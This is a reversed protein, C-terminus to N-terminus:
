RTAKGGRLMRTLSVHLQSVVMREMSRAQSESLALKAMLAARTSTALRQEIQKLWRFVTAAHVRYLRGLADINLEDIYRQRLMNRERRSLSKFATTLAAKYEAACTRWIVELEPDGPAPLAALADESEPEVNSDVRKMDLAIRSAVVRVWRGLPGTGRYQTIAPPTEGDGVLLRDRVRQCVEDVFAASADIRGASQRVAPMLESEVIALAREDKGELACALYLDAAHIRRVAALEPPDDSALLAAGIRDLLVDRGVPKHPLRAEAQEFVVGLAEDLAEGDEIAGARVGLKAVLRESRKSM